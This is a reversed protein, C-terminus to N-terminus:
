TNEEYIKIVEYSGDPRYQVDAPCIEYPEGTEILNISGNLLRVVRRGSACCAERLQAATLAELEAGTLLIGYLLESGDMALKVKTETNAM